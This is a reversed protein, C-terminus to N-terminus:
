TLREFPHDGGAANTASTATKSDKGALRPIETVVVLIARAVGAWLM